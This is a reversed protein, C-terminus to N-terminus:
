ELFLNFPRDNKLLIEGDIPSKQYDQSIINRLKLRGSGHADENMINDAPM